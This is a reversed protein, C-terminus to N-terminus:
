AFSEISYHTIVYCNLMNLRNVEFWISKVSSWQHGSQMAHTSHILESWVGTYFNIQLSNLNAQHVCDRRDAKLTTLMITHYHLHWYIEISRIVLLLMVEFIFVSMIVRIGFELLNWVSKCVAAFNIFVLLKRTLFVCEFM